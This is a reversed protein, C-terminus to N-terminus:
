PAEGRGAMELLPPCTGGTGWATPAVPHLWTCAATCIYKICLLCLIFYFLFLMHSLEYRFVNSTRCYVADHIINDTVHTQGSKPM